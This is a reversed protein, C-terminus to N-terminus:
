IFHKCTKKWSIATSPVPICMPEGINTVLAKTSACKSTTKNSTANQNPEATTKTTNTVNVPNSSTLGINTNSQAGTLLLNFNFSQITPYDFPQILFNGPLETDSDDSVCIDHRPFSNISNDLMEQTIIINRMPGSSHQHPKNKIGSSSENGVIIPASYKKKPIAGTSRKSTEKNTITIDLPVTASNSSKTNDIDNETQIM